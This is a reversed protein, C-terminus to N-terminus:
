GATRGVDLVAEPPVLVDIRYSIAVPTRLMGTLELQLWSVAPDRPDVVLSAPHDVLQHDEAIASEIAVSCAVLASAVLDTRYPLSDPIFFPGGIRTASTRNVIFTGSLDPRVGYWISGSYETRRGTSGTVASTVLTDIRPQPEVSTPNNM